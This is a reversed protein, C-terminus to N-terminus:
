SRPYMDYSHLRKQFSYSVTPDGNFSVVGFNISLNISYVSGGKGVTTHFGRFSPSAQPRQHIHARHAPAALCAVAFDNRRNRLM